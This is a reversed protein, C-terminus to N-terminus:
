VHLLAMIVSELQLGEPEGDWEIIEGKCQGFDGHDQQIHTEEGGRVFAESDKEDNKENKHANDAKKIQRGTRPNQSWETGAVHRDKATTHHRLAASCITVSITTTIVGIGVSARSRRGVLCFNARINTNAKPNKYTERRKPGAEM